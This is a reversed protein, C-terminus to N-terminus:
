SVDKNIYEKPVFILTGANTILKVQQFDNSGGTISRDLVKIPVEGKFVQEFVTKEKELKEQKGKKIEEKRAERSQIKIPGKPLRPTQVPAFEPLGTHPNTTGSGGMMKLIAAEVPTIHALMTDGNRGMAALIQAEQHIKNM